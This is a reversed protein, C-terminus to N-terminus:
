SLCIHKDTCGHLSRGLCTVRLGCYDPWENGADWIEVGCLVALDTSVRHVWTRGSHVTLHLVPCPVQTDHCMGRLPELIQLVTAIQGQDCVPWVHGARSM